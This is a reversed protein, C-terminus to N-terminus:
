CQKWKIIVLLPKRKNPQTKKKNNNKNTKNQKIKSNLAVGTAHTLEWGPTGILAVAALKCWLWFFVLDSGHRWGVGCSVAVGSGKVWQTLGPMLGVDEHISTLTKVQQAM